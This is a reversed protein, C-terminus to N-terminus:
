RFPPTPALEIGSITAQSGKLIAPTNRSSVQGGAIDGSVFLAVTTDRLKMVRSSREPCSTDEKQPTWTLLLTTHVPLTTFCLAGHASIKQEGSVSRLRLTEKNEDVGPCQRQPM